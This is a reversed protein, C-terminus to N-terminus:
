KNKSFFQNMKLKPAKKRHHREISMDVDQCLLLEGYILKFSFIFVLYDINIMNVDNRNFKGEWKDNKYKDKTAM